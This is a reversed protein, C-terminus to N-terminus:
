LNKSIAPHIFQLEALDFFTNYDGWARDDVKKWDVINDAVEKTMTIRVATDIETEGYKDTFELQEWIVVEAISENEFLIEMAAISTHVAQEIADEEDWISDPQFYVHVIYDDPNDTGLHSSIEIKTIEDASVVDLGSLDELAARVSSESIEQESFAPQNNNYGTSSDPKLTPQLAPACRFSDLQVLRGELVV